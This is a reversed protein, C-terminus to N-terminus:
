RELSPFQSTGNQFTANCSGVEVSALDQLGGNMVRTPGFILGDM